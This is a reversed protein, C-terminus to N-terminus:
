FTKKKLFFFKRLYSIYEKSFGFQWGINFSNTSYKRKKRHSKQKKLNLSRKYFHEINASSLYNFDIKYHVYLNRKQFLFKKRRVSAWELFFQKKWFLNIYECLFIKKFSFPAANQLFLNFKKFKYQRLLLNNYYTSNANSWTRQGNVPLGFLHRYTKYSSCIDIILFYYLYIFKYSLSNTSFTLLYTFFINFYLIDPNYKKKLFFSCLYLIKYNRFFIFKIFYKNLGISNLLVNNWFTSYFNINISQASYFYKM